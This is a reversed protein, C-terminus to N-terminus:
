KSIARLELWSLTVHLYCYKSVVDLGAVSNCMNIFRVRSSIFSFGCKTESSPLNSGLPRKCKM